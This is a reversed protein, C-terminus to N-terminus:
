QDIGLLVKAETAVAQGEETNGAGCLQVAQSQMDEAQARKDADIEQTKLANDIKAIDDQCSDALAPATLSFIVSAAFLCHRIMTTSDRGSM